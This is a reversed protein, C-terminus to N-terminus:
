DPASSHTGIMRTESFAFPVNPNLKYFEVHPAIEALSLAMHFLHSDAGEVKGLPYRDVRELIESLRIMMADYFSKLEEPRSSRRAAAREDETPFAWKEAFPQLESFEPPLTVISPRATTNM